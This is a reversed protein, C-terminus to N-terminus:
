RVEYYPLKNIERHLGEPDGYEQEDTGEGKHGTIMRRIEQDLEHRRGLTIFRHRWGHNPQVRKDTVVQRAFETLRNKATRWPGRIEGSAKPTLFLYGDTAGQVFELFGLDILQPHLPVDRYAKNKVTNEGEPTILVFWLGGRQFVDKKRLQVIEGIRAGTFACLWPAWRKALALKEGEQRSKQHKLAHRLIEVAEEDTFGRPRTKPKKTTKLGIGEAPNSKLRQEKVGWKFVTKLAVLESDNITRSSILEGSQPNVDSLRKDKYGVVDLPTVKSADDHGLYDTFYRIARSYGDYTSTYNRTGRSFEKWWGELLGSLSVKAAKAEVERPAEWEPYKTLNVDPSYDGSAYRQLTAGAREVATAIQELLLERSKSDVQLGKRDLVATAADGYLVELNALRDSSGELGFKQTLVVRVIEGRSSADSSSLKECITEFRPDDELSGVLQVYAEGGLAVAQKFTLRQQKDNRLRQWVSEVYAALESQRVKVESPDRTGLSVKVVEAKESIVRRVTKGGVPLFLTVGVSKDRVDTPIRQVFSPISSNKRFMPRALRFLM